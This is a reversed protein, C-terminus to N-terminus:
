STNPRQHGTLPSKFWSDFTKHIESTQALDWTTSPITL